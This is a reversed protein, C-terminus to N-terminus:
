FRYKTTMTETSNQVNVYIKGDSIDDKNSLIKTSLNIESNDYVELNTMSVVEKKFIDVIINGASISIMLVVFLYLLILLEM